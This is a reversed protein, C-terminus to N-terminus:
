WIHGMVPGPSISILGIRCFHYSSRDVVLRWYLSLVSVTRVQVKDPLESKNNWYIGVEEGKVIAFQDRAREDSLWSKLHEKPKLDEIEPEAYEETMSEYMEVDDFAFVSLIHNKDM